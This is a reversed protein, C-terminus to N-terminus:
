EAQSVVHEANERKKPFKKQRTIHTQNKRTPVFGNEQRRWGGSTMHQEKLSLGFKKWSLNWKRPHGQLPLIALDIIHRCVRLTIIPM